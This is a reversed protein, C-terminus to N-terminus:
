RDSLIGDQHGVAAARPVLVSSPRTGVHAQGRPQSSCNLCQYGNRPYITGKSGAISIRQSRRHLPFPNHRRAVRHLFLRGSSMSVIPSLAIRGARERARTPCQRSAIDPEPKPKLSDWMPDFSETMAGFVCGIAAPIFGGPYGPVPPPMQAFDATAIVVRGV